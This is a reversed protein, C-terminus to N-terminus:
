LRTAPRSVLRQFIDLARIYIVLIVPTTLAYITHAGELSGAKMLIAFLAVSPVIGTSSLSLLYRWVSQYLLGIVGMGIMVGPLGFMWYLETPLMTATSTRASDPSSAHGLYWTFWAGPAYSPKEPWLVRPIFITALGKILEPGLFGDREAVYMVLGGMQSSSGRAIWHTMSNGATVIIGDRDWAQFVITSVEGIGVDRNKFWNAERWAQSFPFLFLLVFAIFSALFVMGRFNMRRIIPLLIPMAVLAVEGKMGSRLALAFLPLLAIYVVVSKPRGIAYESKGSLLVATTGIAILRSLSTMEGLSSSLGLAGVLIYFGMGALYVYWLM